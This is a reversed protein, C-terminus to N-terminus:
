FNISTISHFIKKGRLHKVIEVEGEIVQPELLGVALLNVIV